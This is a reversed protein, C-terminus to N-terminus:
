AFIYYVDNTRQYKTLVVRVVPHLVGKITTTHIQVTIHIYIYIYM